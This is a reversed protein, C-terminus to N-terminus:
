AAGGGMDDMSLELAVRWTGKLESMDMVPRDVFRAL